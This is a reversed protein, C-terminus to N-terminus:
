NIVKLMYLSGPEDEDVDLYTFGAKEYLRRAISNSEFVHLVIRYIDKDKLDDELQRLTKM